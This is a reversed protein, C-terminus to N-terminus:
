LKNELKNLREDIGKLAAIILPVFQKEKIGFYSEGNREFATHVFEERLDKVEQAIFGYRELNETGEAIVSDKWTFAVPNLNRIMGMAEFSNLSHSVNKLRLDSPAAFTGVEGTTNDIGLSSYGSVLAPLGSGTGQNLYLRNMHTAPDAFNNLGTLTLSNVGIVVNGSSSGTIQVNEAGFISNNQSDSILSLLGGWTGIITNHHVGAAASATARIASNDGIQINKYLDHVGSGAMDWDIYNSSMTSIGVNYSMDGTIGAAIDIENRGVMFNYKASVASDIDISQGYTALTIFCNDDITGTPSAFEYPTHYGIFMNRSGEFNDNYAWQVKAGLFVSNYLSAGTTGYDSEYVNGRADKTFVGGAGPLAIRVVDGNASNYGLAHTEGTTVLAGSTGRGIKMKPAVVTNALNGGITYAGLGLFLSNDITRNTSTLSSTGIAASRTWSSSGTHTINTLSTGIVASNSLKSISTMGSNGAILSNYLYAGDFSAVGSSANSLFATNNIYGAAIDVGTMLGCAAVLNYKFGKFGGATTTIGITRGFVANYSFDHGAQMTVSHNNGHIINHEATGGNNVTIAMSYGFTFNDVIIGGGSGVLNQYRGLVINGRSTGTGGSITNYAGIAVNMKNNNPLSGYRIEHGYGLALNGQGDTLTNVYTGSNISACNTSSTFVTAIDTRDLNGSGDIELGPTFTFKAGPITGDEIQTGHLLM